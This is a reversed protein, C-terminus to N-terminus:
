KGVYRINWLVTGDRDLMTFSGLNLCYQRVEEMCDKIAELPAESDSHLAGMELCFALSEHQGCNIDKGSLDFRWVGNEPFRTIRKM